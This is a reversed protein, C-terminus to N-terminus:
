KVKKVSPYLKDISREKPMDSQMKVFELTVREGFEKDDSIATIRVHAKIDFEKGVELDVGALADIQADHLSMKPTEVDMKNEALLTGADIAGMYKM